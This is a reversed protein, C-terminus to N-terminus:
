KVVQAVRDGSRPNGGSGGRGFDATGRPGTNGTVGTTGAPRTDGTAGTSGSAGTPGTSGTTGSAGTPGTSGTTGTSGTSGPNNTTVFNLPASTAKAGVADTVVVVLSHSGDAWQTTDAVFKMHRGRNSTWCGASVSAGQTETGGELSLSLGKGVPAGNDSVCWTLTQTEGFGLHSVSAGLKVVGSVTSSVESRWRVLPGTTGANLGYGGDDSGGGRDTPAGANGTAGTPGTPATPGSPGTPGSSGSNGGPPLSGYSSTGGATGTLPPPTETFGGAQAASLVHHRAAVGASATTVPLATALLLVGASVGAGIVMSNSAGVKM